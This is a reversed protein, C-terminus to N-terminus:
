WNLATTMPTFGMYLFNEGKTTRLDKTEFNALIVVKNSLSSCLASSRQANIALIDTIVSSVRCSLVQNVLYTRTERPLQSTLQVCMNLTKFVQSAGLCSLDWLM